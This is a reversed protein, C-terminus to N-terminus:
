GVGIGVTLDSLKDDPHSKCYTVLEKQYAAGALREVPGVNDRNPAGWRAAIDLQEAHSKTLYDSCAINLPDSSCASTALVM